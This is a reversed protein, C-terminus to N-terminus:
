FAKPDLNRLKDLVPQLREVTANVEEPSPDAKRQKIQVLAAKPASSAQSGQVQNVMSTLGGFTKSDLHALKEMIPELAAMKGEVDEPADKAYQLFSSGRVPAGAVTTQAQDMMNSMAGFAKPDLNRLKDLVPQLRAMTESVDAQPQQKRLSGASVSAVLFVLVLSRM